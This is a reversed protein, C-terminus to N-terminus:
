GFDMLTELPMELAAALKALLAPRGTRERSEIRAIAPQQVGVLAGLEAQSLSRHERYVKLPHTGDIILMALHMPISPGKNSAMAEDYARTLLVDELEEEIRLWDAMPMAVMTTGDREFEEVKIQLM